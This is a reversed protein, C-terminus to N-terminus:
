INEGVPLKFINFLGLTKLPLVVASLVVVHKEIETGGNERKVLLDL